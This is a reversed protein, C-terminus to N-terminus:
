GAGHAGCRQHRLEDIRAGEQQNGVQEPEEAGQHKPHLPAAEGVVDLAQAAAGIGYIASLIILLLRTRIM